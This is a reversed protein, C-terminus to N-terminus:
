IPNVSFDTSQSCLPLGEMMHAEKDAWSIVKFSLSQPGKLFSATQRCAARPRCRGCVDVRGQTELKWVQLEWLDTFWNRQREGLVGGWFFLILPRDLPPCHLVPSEPVNHSLFNVKM